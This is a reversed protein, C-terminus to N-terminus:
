QDTQINYRAPWTRLVPETEAPPQLWYAAQLMNKANLLAISEGESFTYGYDPALAYAIM